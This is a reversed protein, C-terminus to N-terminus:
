YISVYQVIKLLYYSYKSIFQTNYLIQFIVVNKSFAKHQKARGALTEAFRMVEMPVADAVHTTAAAEAPTQIQQPEHDEDDGHAYVPCANVM